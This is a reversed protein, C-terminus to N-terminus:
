FEVQYKAVMKRRVDATAKNINDWTQSRIVRENAGAQAILSNIQPANSVNTTVTTPAYNYGWYANGYPTSGPSQVAADARQLALTQSQSLTAKGLTALGRLTVSVQSGYTQLDPDVGLLPLEDIQQAYNQYARSLNNYTSQKQKQLENLLKSVSRFYKQSAEASPKAPGSSSMANGSTAVAPSLLPSVLQRLGRETLAGSLVISAGSSKVTWAELDEVTDGSAELAMLVLAKAVPTLASVSDGDLRLEGQLTPAVQVALRIGKIGAIARVITDLQAEHGAIAKSTALKGRLGPPDFVDTMDIAMVVPANPSATAEKLYPSLSGGTTRLWRAFEQRNAPHMAGITQPALVAFYTNRPSIVVQRGALDDTTGGEASALQAPTMAKRTAAIGVKWAADLTTPSIQGGIVLREVTEPLSDVGTLSDREHNKAWGNKAGMPSRHVADVDVLLVANAQAPVRRILDGFDAALCPRAAVIILGACLWCSLRHM